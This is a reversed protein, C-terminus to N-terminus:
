PRYQKRVAKIVDGIGADTKIANDEFHTRSAGHKKGLEEVVAGLPVSSFKLYSTVAPISYSFPIDLEDNIKAVLRYGDGEKDLFSDLMRRIVKKDQLSGLWLPGFDQMKGGCNGCKAELHPSVGKAYSFNHCRVCYSGFGSSKVSSVAEEAGTRLILFARMYHMDAISLVPEIGFNFQAAEKSIYGLLIRMGAEHCFENHMPRAAYTKICADAEAGCLTATDTATVMLVTGNRSIKLADHILPVPSGFPDLDIVEFSDRCYGAFEQLSEALVKAKKLGNSKANRRAIAAVKANIDILTLERIGAEKAYRIGRIGTAATADLLSADKLDLANLFAVSIDRLKRMKPNYFAAGTSIKAKGETIAAM